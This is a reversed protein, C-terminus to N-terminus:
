HLSSLWPSTYVNKIWQKIRKLFNEKKIHVDNAHDHEAHHIADHKRIEHKAKWKAFPWILLATIVEWTLEFSIHSIDTMLSRYEEM